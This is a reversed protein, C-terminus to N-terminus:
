DSQSPNSAPTLPPTSQTPNQAQNRDPMLPADPQLFEELETIIAMPDFRLAKALELLEVVTLRKTGAEIKSITKHDWQLHDALDRQSLLAERRRDLLIKGMAIDIPARSQRREARKRSATPHVQTPLLLPVLECQHVAAMQHLADIAAKVSVAFWEGNTRHQHLIKHTSTEINAAFSAESCRATYELFIPVSSSTRLTCFRVYPRAAIGIKVLGSESRIVYVCNSRQKTMLCRPKSGEATTLRSPFLPQPVALLWTWQM